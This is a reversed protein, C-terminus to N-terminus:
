PAVEPEIQPPFAADSRRGKRRVCDDNTERLGISPDILVSTNVTFVRAPPYILRRRYNNRSFSPFFSNASPPWIASPNSARPIREYHPARPAQTFQSTIIRSGRRCAGPSPRSFPFFFLSFIRCEAERDAEGNGARDPASVDRSAINGRRVAAAAAPSRMHQVYRRNCEHSDQTVSELAPMVGPPVRVNYSVAPRQFLYLKAFTNSIDRDSASGAHSETARDRCRM